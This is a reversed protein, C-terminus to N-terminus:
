ENDGQAIPTYVFKNKLQMKKYFGQAALNDMSTRATEYACRAAKKYDQITYYRGLTCHTAYFLAQPKRISPNTEVIYRAYEKIEKDSMKPEPIRLAREGVPLASIAPVEKPAPKNEIPKEEQIPSAPAIPVERLTNQRIPAVVEQPEIPAPAEKPLDNSDVRNMEQRMVDAEAGRIEAKVQDLLPNLIEIAYLVIYTIDSQRQTELFLEKFRKRSPKVLSELPILTASQGLGSQALVFKALLSAIAENHHDFPKLYIIEYFTAMAKVFFDCPDNALFTFLAEMQSTLSEAPAYYYDRNVQITNYVTGYNQLRYFSTLERQSLLLGYIEALLDETLPQTFNRELYSLADRYGLMPQHTLDNERYTGNLMAKLSIEPIKINEIEAMSRLMELKSYSSVRSQLKPAESLSEFERRLSDLKKEFENIRHNIIPTLTIKFSHQTLTRLSLPKQNIKRYSEVREWLQDILSTHLNAVLDSKTAYKEDTWRAGLEIGAM